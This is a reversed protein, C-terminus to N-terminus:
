PKRMSISATLTRSSMIFGPFYAVASYPLAATVTGKTMTVTGVTVSTTTATTTLNATNIHLDSKSLCDAVLFQAYATTGTTYGNPLTATNECYGRCGERVANTLAMQVQLARGVEVAGLVIIVLVPAVLAFEVAATGRRSTRIHM